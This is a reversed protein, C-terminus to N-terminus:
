WYNMHVAHFRDKLIWRKKAGLLDWFNVILKTVKTVPTSGVEQHKSLGQHIQLPVISDANHLPYVHM